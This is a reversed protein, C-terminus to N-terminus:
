AELKSQLAQQAYAYLRRPTRRLTFICRTKPQGAVTGTITGAGVECRAVAAHGKSSAAALCLEKDWTCGQERASRLVDLHGGGGARVCTGENWPCEHEREWRLVDLHGGQAAYACRPGSTGLPRARSGM